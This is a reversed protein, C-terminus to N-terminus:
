QFKPVTIPTNDPVGLYTKIFALIGYMSSLVFLGIIGYLIIQKADNVKKPDGVAKSNILKVIGWGFVVFAFAILIEIIVTLLTQFNTLVSKVPEADPNQAYAFLPSTFLIALFFHSLHIIIRKM